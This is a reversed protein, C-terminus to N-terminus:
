PIKAKISRILGQLLMAVKTLSQKLAALENQNGIEIRNAIVLQTALESASGAAIHLFQLFEKNGQRAAGEAINSPISVAARRMQSVLGFREEDPFTRTVQYISAALDVSQKWVDLDEHNM